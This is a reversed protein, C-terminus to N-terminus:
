NRGSNPPNSTPSPKTEPTTEGNLFDVFRQIEEDTPNPPLFAVKMRKTRGSGSKRERESTM